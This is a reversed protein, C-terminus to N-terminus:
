EYSNVDVLEIRERPIWKETNKSVHIRIWHPSFEVNVNQYVDFETRVTVNEIVTM